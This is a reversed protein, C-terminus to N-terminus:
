TSSRFRPMTAEARVLAAASSMRRLPTSGTVAAMTVAALSFIRTMKLPSNAPEPTATVSMVRMGESTKLRSDIRWSGL